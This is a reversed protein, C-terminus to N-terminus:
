VDQGVRERLRERGIAPPRYDFPAFRAARPAERHVGVIPLRALAARGGRVAIELSALAGAAAGLQDAGGHGGGRRDRAMQGIHAFQHALSPGSSAVVMSFNSVSVPMAAGTASAFMSVSRMM